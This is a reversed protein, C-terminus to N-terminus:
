EEGTINLMDAGIAREAWMKLRDMGMGTSGQTDPVTLVVPFPEESSFATIDSESGEAMRETVMVLGYGERRLLRLLGMIDETNEPVFGDVGLPRFCAVTEGDGVVALKYMTV